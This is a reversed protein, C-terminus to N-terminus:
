ANGNRGSGNEDNAVDHAVVVYPAIDLANRWLRRHLHEPPLAFRIAGAAGRIGRHIKGRQAGIDAQDAQNAVIFRSTPQQPRQAAGADVRSAHDHRPFARCRQLRADDCAPLM